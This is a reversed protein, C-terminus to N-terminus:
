LRDEFKHLFGAVASFDLAYAVYQFWSNQYHALAVVGGGTWISM